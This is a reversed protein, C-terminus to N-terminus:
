WSLNQAYWQAQAQYCPNDGQITAWGFGNLQIADFALHPAGTVGQPAAGALWSTTKGACGNYNTDFGWSGAPPAVAAPTGGPAASLPGAARPARAPARVLCTGPCIQRHGPPVAALARGVVTRGAAPSSAASAQAAGAAALSLAALAAAALVRGIRHAPWIM